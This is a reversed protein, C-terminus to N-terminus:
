ERELLQALPQTFPQLQERGPGRIQGLALLRQPPRDLPAVIEAGALFLRQQPSEADERAPERQLRGFLDASGTEILQLREHLLAEDAAPVAAEAHELGHPLVRQLSELVASLCRIPAAPMRIVIQCEGLAESRHQPARPATPSSM